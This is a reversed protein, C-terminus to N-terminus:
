HGAGRQGHGSRKEFRRKGGGQYRSGSSVRGRGDAPPYPNRRSSSPARAHRGQSYSRQMGATAPPPPPPPPGRLPALRERSPQAHMFPQHPPRSRDPSPQRDRERDRDSWRPQPEYNPHAPQIYLPPLLHHDQAQLHPHQYSPHYQSRYDYEYSPDIDMRHDQRSPPPAYQPHPLMSPPTRPVYFPANSSLLPPPSAELRESLSASTSSSPGSLYENEYPDETPIWRPPHSQVDHWQTNINRVVPEVDMLAPERFRPSREPYTSTSHSPPLFNPRHPSLPPYRDPLAM